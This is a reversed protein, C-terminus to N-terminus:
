AKPVSSSMSSSAGFVGQECAQDFGVLGCIGILPATKGISEAAGHEGADYTEADGDRLDFAFEFDALVAGLDVAASDVGCVGGAGGILM